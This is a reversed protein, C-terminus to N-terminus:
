ERPIGLCIEISRRTKPHLVKKFRERRKLYWETVDTTNNMGQARSAGRWDALMEYLYEDPMELAENDEENDMTLIHFQWHHKNRKQHHNWAMNFAQKAALPLLRIAYCYRGDRDDLWVKESSAVITKGVIIEGRKYKIMTHRTEGGYFWKVYPSWERPSFKSLDHVIGQWLIGLKYCEILTYWKHVLVYRLYQLHRSVM